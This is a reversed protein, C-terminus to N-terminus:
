DIQFGALNLLDQIVKGKIKLDLPSDTNLSSSLNVELLWPKMNEDILVDFGLLEFCCQSGHPVFMKVGNSLLPEASILTKVLMDDIEEFLKGVVEEGKQKRLFTKLATISWKSGEGDNEASKNSVFQDSFKNISYNTLHSFKNQIDTTQYKQTAFRVLGEEHIYLRLPDVSLLAVYIRM